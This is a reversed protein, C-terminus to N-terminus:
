EACIKKRPASNARWYAIWSPLRRLFSTGCVLPRSPLAPARTWALYARPEPPFPKRSPATRATACRSAPRRPPRRDRGAGNGGARARGRAVRAARPRAGRGALGADGAEGGRALGVQGAGLGAGARAAYGPRRGAGGAVCAPQGSRSWRRARVAAGRVAPAPTRAGDRGGVARDVFVGAALPLACHATLVLYRYALPDIGRAALAALTLFAGHLWYRAPGHGHCAEHQAIENVHHVPVHDEGGIHLDFLAGLHATSMASCEIHWGPFGRGWPSDWEM